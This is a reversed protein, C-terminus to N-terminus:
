IQCIKGHFIIIPLLFSSPLTHVRKRTILFLRDCPSILNVAIGLQFFVSDTRSNSGPRGKLSHQREVLQAVVALKNHVKRHATVGFLLSVNLHIQPSQSQVPSEPSAVLLYSGIWSIDEYRFFHVRTSKSRLLEQNSLSKYSSTM